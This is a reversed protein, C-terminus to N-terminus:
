QVYSHLLEKYYMGENLPRLTPVNLIAIYVYM